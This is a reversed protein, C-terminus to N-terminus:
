MRIMMSLLFPLKLIWLNFREGEPYLPESEVIFWTLKICELQSHGCVCAMLTITHTKGDFHLWEVRELQDIGNGIKM